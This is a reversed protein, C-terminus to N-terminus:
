YTLSRTKIRVEKKKHRFRQVRLSLETTEDM